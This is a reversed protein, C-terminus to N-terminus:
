SFAKVGRHDFRLQGDDVFETEVGPGGGLEGGGGPAKAAIDAGALIGPQHVGLTDHRQHQQRRALAGYEVELEVPVVFLVGVGGDAAQEGLGEPFFLLGPYCRGRGASVSAAKACGWGRPLCGTAVLGLWSARRALISWIMSGASRLRRAWMSLLRAIGSMAWWIS